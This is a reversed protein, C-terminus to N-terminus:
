LNMRRLLDKFGASGRLTDFIPDVSIYPM